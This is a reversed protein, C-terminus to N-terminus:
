IQTFKWNLELGLTESQRMLIESPLGAEITSSQNQALQLNNQNQCFIQHIQIERHM